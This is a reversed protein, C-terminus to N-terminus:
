FINIRSSKSFVFTWSELDELIVIKQRTMLIKSSTCDLTKQFIGVKLHISTSELEGHNCQLTRPDVTEPRRSRFGGGQPSMRTHWTLPPPDTVSDKPGEQLTHHVINKEPNAPWKQWTQRFGRWSFTVTGFTSWMKQGNAVPVSLKSSSSKNWFNDRDHCPDEELDRRERAWFGFPAGTKRTYELELNETGRGWVQERSRYM